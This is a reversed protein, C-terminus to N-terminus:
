GLPMEEVIEYRAGKPSLHSRWLGVRDVRWGTAPVHLEPWEGAPRTPIKIRALTLHPTFGREEAPFGLPALAEDLARALKSLLRAPDRLGVWLVRPRRETPFAGLADLSVDAPDHSRAVKRVAGVVRALSDADTWGLFKLTVHQDALNIWRAGPWAPKIPEVVAALAALTDHPVAVAAFLRLREPTM